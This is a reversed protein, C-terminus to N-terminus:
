KLKLDLCRIIKDNKEFGLASYTKEAIINEPRYDIKVKKDFCQKILGNKINKKLICL